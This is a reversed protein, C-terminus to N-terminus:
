QRAEGKTDAKAESKSAKAAAGEEVFRAIQDVPLAGALQVGAGNFMTPTGNVGLRRGLQVNAQLASTDCEQMLVPKNTMHDEWAKARDKSCWIAKASAMSRESLMAYPFMYITVDDLTKLSPELRKCFGCEPDSFVYLVRSGKGRVTKIANKTDLTAVDIKNLENKREQTMNRQSEMDILNGFMFVKGTADTYAVDKGMVVEYIGAVQSPRVSTFPTNVYMTKLKALMAEPKVGDGSNASATFAVAALAIASLFHKM